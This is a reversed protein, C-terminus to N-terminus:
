RGQTEPNRTAQGTSRRGTRRVSSNQPQSGAQGQLEHGEEPSPRWAGRPQAANGEVDTKTYVSQLGPQTQPLPPANGERARHRPRGTDTTPARGAQDPSVKENKLLKKFAFKRPAETAGAKIETDCRQLQLTM